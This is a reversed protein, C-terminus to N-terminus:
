DGPGDPFVVLLEILQQLLQRHGLVLVAGLYFPLDGLQLLLQRLICPFHPRHDLLQPGAGLLLVVLPKM